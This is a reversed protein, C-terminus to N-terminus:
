IYELGLSRLKSTIKRKTYKNVILGCGLVKNNDDRHFASFFKAFFNKVNQERKGTFCWEFFESTAGIFFDALQLAQSYRSSTVLLCPCAKFNKLPRLINKPFNYGRSYANQYVEFYFESPKGGPFLDFVVDLYPYIDNKKETMKKRELIICIRQMINMFAWKWANERYKPKGKWALSMILRIPVKDIISFIDTRIENTHNLLKHIRPNQCDEDKLNWKITDEDRLGYDHKISVM